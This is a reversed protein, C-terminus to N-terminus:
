DFRMKDNIQLKLREIELRLEDREQEESKKAHEQRLMEQIMARMKEEQEKEMRMANVIDLPRSCVECFTMEKPYKTKCYACERLSNEKEDAKKIGMRRLIKEDVSEQNLHTYTSPMTSSKEWGHRMRSEAETLDTALETITRHRFLHSTIKKKIRAQKVRKQLICRFGAYNIQNGFTDEHDIYIWLPSELDDRFPHANIWKVLYPVSKVILISRVGTKGDVKIKAGIEGVIVDKIRMGLLEGARTAAEDHVAFMAKDRISDACTNIIQRVEEETPLDERTLTSKPKKLKLFKIKEVEGDEPKNRSGTEIFRVIARLSTKLAHSYGTDRGNDGHKLMIQMIIKQLDEKTIETWEKQIMETLLGFHALNKYRTNVSVSSIILNDNFQLFLEYNKESMKEKQSRLCTLIWKERHHVDKKVGNRNIITISM